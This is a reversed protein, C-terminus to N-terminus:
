VGIWPQLWENNTSMARDAMFEAEPRQPAGADEVVTVALLPTWTVKSMDDVTGKL